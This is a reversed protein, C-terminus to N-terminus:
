FDRKAFIWCAIALVVAEFALSTGVIWAVTRKRFQADVRHSFEKADEDQMKGGFMSVTRTREYQDGESTNEELMKVNMEKKLTRSLLSITEGTKPLVTKVKIMAGQWWKWTKLSERQNELEARDEALAPVADDLEKSSPAPPTPKAAGEPLDKTHQSMWVKQWQRTAMADGKAVKKELREVNMQSTVVGGTVVGDGVNIVCLGIWFLMVLLLSTITSRTVLGLLACVSYLYSYFCVVLPVALFISPEWSGGRIGIVLFSALSFVLIQLGSFMLGSAFKTLFLRVRGIPKSLVLEVAGGAIFNPILGATSILALISAGWTLWIPIALGAFLGKYYQDRPITKTSVTGWLDGIRWWLLTLGKEDIGIMAITLVILGSIAMSLWFLKKSNLDRYADVLLAWTQTM